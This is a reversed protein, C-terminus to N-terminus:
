SPRGRYKPQFLARSPMFFIDLTDSVVSPATNTAADRGEEWSCVCFGGARSAWPCSPHVGGGSDSCHLNMKLVAQLRRCRCRHHIHHAVSAALYICSQKRSSEYEM